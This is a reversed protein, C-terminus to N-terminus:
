QLIEVAIFWGKSYMFATVTHWGFCWYGDLLFHVSTIVSLSKNEILNVRGCNTLKMATVLRKIQWEVPLSDLLEFFYTAYGYEPRELVIRHEFLFLIQDDVM